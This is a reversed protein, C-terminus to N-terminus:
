NDGETINEGNLTTTVNGLLPGESIKRFRNSEVTLIMSVAYVGDTDTKFPISSTFTKLTLYADINRIKIKMDIKDNFIESILESKELCDRESNGFYVIQYTNEIVYHGGALGNSGDSQWRIGITNPTYTQPFDQKFFRDVTVAELVDGITDIEQTRTSM